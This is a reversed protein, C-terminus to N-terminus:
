EKAAQADSLKKEIEKDAQGGLEISKFYHRRALEVAPPKRQLYVVSLNYHADRYIPDIEVARRLEAEAGDLWGKRGLVAGLYNHARANGADYLVAQSLAAFAPETKGQQFYIMGLTFWAPGTELRQAIAQKLFKEAKASDGSRFEILGLNVLAVLNDPALELVKQYANRAAKYDGKEFATNGEAAVERAVKPVFNAADEQAQALGALALAAIAICRMM